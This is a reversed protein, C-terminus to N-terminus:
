KIRRIEPWGKYIANVWEDRLRAIDEGKLVEKFGMEVAKIKGIEPMKWKHISYVLTPIVRWVTALFLAKFSDRVEKDDGVERFPNPESIGEEEALVDHLEELLPWLEDCYKCTVETIKDAVERWNRM